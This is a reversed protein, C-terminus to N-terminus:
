MRYSLIGQDGSQQGLLGCLKLLNLRGRRCVNSRKKPLRAFATHRSFVGYLNVSNCKGGTLSLTGRFSPRGLRTASSAGLAPMIVHLAGDPPGRRGGGVARAPASRVAVAAGRARRVSPRPRATVYMSRSRVASTMTFVCIERM